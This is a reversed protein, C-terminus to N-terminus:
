HTKTRQDYTIHHELSLRSGFIVGLNKVTDEMHKVTDDTTIQFM